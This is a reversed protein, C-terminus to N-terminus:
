LNTVIQRPLSNGAASIRDVKTKELMGGAAVYPILKGASPCGCATGGRATVKPTYGKIGEGAIVKTAKRLSRRLAHPM